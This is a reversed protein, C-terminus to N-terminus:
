IAHCDTSYPEYLVLDPPCLGSPSFQILWVARLQWAMYTNSPCAHALHLQQIFHGGVSHWLNSAARIEHIVTVHM